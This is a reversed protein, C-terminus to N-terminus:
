VLPGWFQKSPRNEDESLFFDKGMKCFEKISLSGDNNKDITAFTEAAAEASIGLIKYMLKFEEVSIEGSKDYDVAKFFYPLPSGVKKRLPKSNVVQEMNTLYAEATIFVYPDGSAGWEEEWVHQMADRFAVTEEQTLHGIDSFRAILVEFDDWSVVGDNNIDFIQHHTRMKQRWFASKGRSGKKYKSHEKKVRRERDSDSDSDSDSYDKKYARKSYQRSSSVAQSIASPRAYAPSSSYTKTTAVASAPMVLRQITQPRRLAHCAIRTLSM